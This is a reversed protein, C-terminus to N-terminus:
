VIERLFLFGLIKPNQNKPNLSYDSFNESKYNVNCRFNKPFIISFGKYNRFSKLEGLIISSVFIKYPRRTSHM